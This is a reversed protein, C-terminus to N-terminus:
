HNLRLSSRGANRNDRFGDYCVVAVVSKRLPRVRELTFSGTVSSRDDGAGITAGGDSKERVLPFAFKGGVLTCRARRNIMRHKKRVDYTEGRTSLFCDRFFICM